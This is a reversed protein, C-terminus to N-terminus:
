PIWLRVLIYEKKRADEIFLSFRHREETRIERLYFIPCNISVIRCVLRIDAPQIRLDLIDCLVLRMAVNQDQSVVARCYNLCGIIRSLQLINSLHPRREDCIERILYVPGARIDPEPRKSMSMEIAIELIQSRLLPNHCILFAITPRFQLCKVRRFHGISLRFGPPFKTMGELSM